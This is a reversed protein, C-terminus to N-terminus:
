LTERLLITGFPQDVPKGDYFVLEGRLFTKEVVGTVERDLYPTEKHKHFINGRQICHKSNPDFFIFDADLGLSIRGKRHALGALNAPNASLIQSLKELSFGRKKAETWVLSLTFQLSSIGGWAKEFSGSQLCKLRPTCPSHDSVVFDIRGEKLAEWLKECNEKERIPPCCKFLTEGSSIGESHLLLYHPCTEVSIDLNESRALDLMPLADSSSLHVIHVKCSHKRSLEILHEIASNEFSRPRSNLFSEYSTNIEPTPDEPTEDMEAHILYPIRSGSLVQMTQELQELSLHPFEDLGSDIMFSKVGLVGSKLLGPLDAFSDSTIGGWFGTDVWLKGELAAIKTELASASTTVPSCNLPMDVVTTIGGAAAAQTATEFGEWETRGPENIHVHSDVIGPLIVLDGADEVPGSFGQPLGTLIAEIRGQDVLICAKELGIQTLVRNGLFAKV